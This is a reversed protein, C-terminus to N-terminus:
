ETSDEGCFLVIMFWLAHAIPCCNMKNRANKKETKTENKESSFSVNRFVSGESASRNTKPLTLWAWDRCENIKNGLKKKVSFGSIFVLEDDDKSLRVIICSGIGGKLTM